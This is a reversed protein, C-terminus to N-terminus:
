KIAHREDAQRTAELWAIQGLEYFEAKELYIQLGADILWKQYAECLCENYRDYGDREHDTMIKELITM